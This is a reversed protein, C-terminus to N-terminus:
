SDLDLQGKEAAALIAERNKEYFDPDSLQAMTIKAKGGDASGDGGAPAGPRMTGEFLEPYLQERFVEKVFVDLDLDRKGFESDVTASIKGEDGFTLLPKILLYAGDPKKCKARVLAESVTTRNRLEQEAQQAAEARKQNNQSEEQLDKVQKRLEVLEPPETAGGEKKGPKAGGSASEALQNRLEAITSVAKELNEGLQKVQGGLEERLTSSQKDMVGKLITPTVYQAAPDSGQSGAGGGGGGDSDPKAQPDVDKSPEGGTSTPITDEPM